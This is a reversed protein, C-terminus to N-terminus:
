PNNTALAKLAERNNYFYPIISKPFTRRSSPIYEMGKPLIPLSVM